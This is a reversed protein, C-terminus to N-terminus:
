ASDSGMGAAETHGAQLVKAHGSKGLLVLLGKTGLLLFAVGGVLIPALDLGAWDRFRPSETWWPQGPQGTLWGYTGFIVAGLMVGAFGYGIVLTVLTAWM